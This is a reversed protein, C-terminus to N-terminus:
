TIDVYPRRCSPTSKRRRDITFQSSVLEVSSRHHDFKGGRDGVFAYRLRRAHRQAAERLAFMRAFVAAKPRLKRSLALGFAHMAHRRQNPLKM